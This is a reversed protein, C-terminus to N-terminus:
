CLFLHIKRSQLLQGHLFTSPSAPALVSTQCSYEVFPLSLESGWSKALVDKLLELDVASDGRLVIKQFAPKHVLM